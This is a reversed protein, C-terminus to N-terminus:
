IREFKHEGNMVGLYRAMYYHGESNGWFKDGPNLLVVEEPPHLRNNETELEDIRNLLREVFPNKKLCRDCVFTDEDFGIYSDDPYECECLNCKTYPRDDYEVM